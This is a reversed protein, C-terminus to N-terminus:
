YILELKFGNLHSARPSAWSESVDVIRSTCGVHRSYVYYEDRRDLPKLLAFMDTHKNGDWPQIGRSIKRDLYQVIIM